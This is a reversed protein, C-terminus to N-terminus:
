EEELDYLDDDQSERPERFDRVKKERSQVWANRQFVYFDFAAEREAGIAELLLSRRNVFDPVAVAWSVWIPAFFSFVTAARDGALGVTDRPSSPGLLPLLLYPGPPIGWVGFTQGFDEDHKAIRLKSAVDFLGGVGATLNVLMRGLTEAMAVPKAQLLCNVSVGPLLVTDFVNRISLQVRDPLVFDWGKAVPEIVYRDARENFWFIRRNFPELPDAVVSEGPPDGAHPPLATAAPAAGIGLSAVMLVAATRRPGRKM